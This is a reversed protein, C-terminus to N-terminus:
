QSDSNIAYETYHAIMGTRNIQWDPDALAQQWQKSLQSEHSKLDTLWVLAQVVWSM